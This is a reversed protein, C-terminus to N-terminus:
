GCKGKNVTATSDAHFGTPLELRIRFRIWMLKGLSTGKGGAAEEVTHATTNFHSAVGIATQAQNATGPILRADLIQLTGEPAKSVLTALENEADAAPPTTKSYREYVAAIGAFESASAIFRFRRPNWAVADQARFSYDTSLLLPSVSTYPPTALEVYDHALRPEHVPLVRLIWGSGWSLAELRVELGGGIPQAFSEGARVEGEILEFRCAGAGTSPTAPLGSADSVLVLWGLGVLVMTAALGNGRM